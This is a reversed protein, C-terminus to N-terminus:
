RTDDPRDSFRIHPLNYGITDLRQDFVKSIVKQQDVWPSSDDPQRLRNAADVPSSKDSVIPM